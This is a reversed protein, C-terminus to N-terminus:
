IRVPVTGAFKDHLGRTDLDWILAPIVAILLVTRIM